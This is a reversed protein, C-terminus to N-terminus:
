ANLRPGSEPADSENAFHVNLDDTAKIEQAHPDQVAYQGQEPAFWEERARVKRLRM